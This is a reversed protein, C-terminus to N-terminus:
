GAFFRFAAVFGYSGLTMVVGSIMVGLLAAAMATRFRIGITAAALSGTWAGTIPLPIAVFLCLGWFSYKEIKTSKKVARRDLWGAFRNLFGIKSHGMWFIIKRIFLLIFPVPIMNGLVALTYSQWWPMGLGAGLPIAGRLEVIPLMSCLFVCWERGVTELFFNAIADKM